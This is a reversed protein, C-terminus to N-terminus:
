RNCLAGECRGDSLYYYTNHSGPDIPKPVDRPVLFTALHGGYMGKPLTVARTVVYTPGSTSARVPALHGTGSARTLAANLERRDAPTAERLAGESLLQQIGAEKPAVGDIRVEVASRLDRLRLGESAEPASGGDAHLGVPGYSGSFSAITRGTAGEVTAALEELKSGGEYAYSPEGCGQDPSGRTVIRLPTESSLGAVAQDHYGYVLVARLRDAPVARLDWVVPDYASLILVLPPGSSDAGVAIAGTDHKSEGLAFKTSTGGEYAGLAVFRAGNTASTQLCPGKSDQRETPDMRGTEAGGPGEGSAAPGQRGFGQRELLVPAAMATGICLAGLALVHMIRM